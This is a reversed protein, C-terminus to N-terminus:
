ELIGDRMRITRDARNAVEPDHTVIVLTEGNKNFEELFGMIMGSAKTDLNGTPEDGLIVKPENALARAIAVRQQEGGSLESPKHDARDRLEIEELLKKAREIRKERPVGAFMMPLAVNELANLTHLLNFTQFVFGIRERRIKALDDDNLKSTDVGDILINGSTPRDLCGIINLVTSKGSGSPGIIVIFEGEKVKLNVGRLAPVEIEGISYVKRLDKTLIIEDGEPFRDVSREEISM